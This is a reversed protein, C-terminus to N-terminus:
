GPSFGNEQQVSAPKEAEDAATRRQRRHIEGRRKAGTYGSWGRFGRCPRGLGEDAFEVVAEAFILAFDDDEGPVV